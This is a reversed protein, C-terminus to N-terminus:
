ITDDREDDAFVIEPSVTLMVGQVLATAAAGIVVNTYDASEDVDLHAIGAYAAANLSVDRNGTDIRPLGLKFTAENAQLQNDNDGSIASNLLLEGVPLGLRVGGGVDLSGGTSLDVMFS